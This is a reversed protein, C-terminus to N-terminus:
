AKNDDAELLAIVEAKNSAGSIDIGRKEAEADLDGRSMKTYEKAGGADPSPEGGAAAEEAEKSSAKAASKGTKFHEPLDDLEAQEVEVEMTQGAELLVVGGKAAIGRPGKDTNTLSVKSFKKDAM